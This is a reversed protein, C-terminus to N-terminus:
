LRMGLWIVSETSAAVIPTLVKPWFQGKAIHAASQDHHQQEEAVIKSIAAVAAEDKGELAALQRKLHGLVVHEVAVTTAAIAHGGFLATIFGLVYGGAACLWYSRCRPKGRRQLEEQFIARHREEHSKFEELEKVLSPATLRAVLIQGAYIHIAGNEGAHNVKLIRNGLATHDAPSKDPTVLPRVHLSQSGM